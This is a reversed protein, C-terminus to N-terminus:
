SSCKCAEYNYTQIASKQCSHIQDSKITFAIVNETNKHKKMLNYLLFDPYTSGFAIDCYPKM